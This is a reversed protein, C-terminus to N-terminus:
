STIYHLMIHCFTLINPPGMIMKFCALAPNYQTLIPYFSDFYTLIFGYQHINTFVPGFIDVNNLFPWFKDLNTSIPLLYICYTM